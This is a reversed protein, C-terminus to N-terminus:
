FIIALAILRSVYKTELISSAISQSTFFDSWDLLPCFSAEWHIKQWRGPDVGLRV